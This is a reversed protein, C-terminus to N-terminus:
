FRVRVTGNSAGIGAALAAAKTEAALEARYKDRWTLLQEPTMKSISRGGISYALQDSSARGELVAELADLTRAVHSRGDAAGAAFNAVVTLAGAAVTYRESAKTAYAQWHYAGPEWLATTAATVSVLHTGDGNDSATVAYRVGAKVIAYTVVWGDAPLYQPLNKTWKAADGAVLKTPEQNAIDTMKEV